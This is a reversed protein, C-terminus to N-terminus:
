LYLKFSKILATKFYGLKKNTIDHSHSYNVYVKRSIRMLKMPQYMINSEFLLYYDHSVLFHKVAKDLLKLSMKHIM